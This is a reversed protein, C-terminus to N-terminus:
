PNSTGSVTDAADNAAITRTGASDLTATVTAKGIETFSAALLRPLPQESRSRGTFGSVTRSRRCTRRHHHHERHWGGHAICAACHDLVPDGRRGASRGHPMPRPASSAPLAWVTSSRSASPAPRPQRTTALTRTPLWELATQYQAANGAGSLTLTGTSASFTGSINGQTVFGLSDEGSVYGNSISVTAHYDRLKRQRHAHRGSRRGRRRQQRHLRVASSTTTVVPLDYRNAYVGYSSGDEGYSEWAVVFDGTSDM